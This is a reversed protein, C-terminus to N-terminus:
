KMDQGVVFGYINTGGDITTFVLVDLGTATLTPAIGGEWKVEAPWTIVAAGGNVAYATLKGEKGTAPWDSFAWTFYDGVTVKSVGPSFTETTGIAPTGHDTVVIAASLVEIKSFRRVGVDAFPRSTVFILALVMLMILVIAKKTRYGLM